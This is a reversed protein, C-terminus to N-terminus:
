LRGAPGPLSSAVFRAGFTSHDVRSASSEEGANESDRLHRNLHAQFEDSAKGLDHCRGAIWGWEGAGFEAAFRQCLQAVKKLHEDLPEWKDRRANPLTHAYLRLQDADM